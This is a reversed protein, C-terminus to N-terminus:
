LDPCTECNPSHREMHCCSCQEMPTDPEVEEFCHQCRQKAGDQSCDECIQKAGGYPAEGPECVPCWSEEPETM